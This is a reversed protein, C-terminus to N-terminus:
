VLRRRKRWETPTIGYRIKFRRTFHEATKYGCSASIEYIGEDTLALLEAAHSLRVEDIYERPTKGIHERFLAGLYYPHYKLAKAVSINTLPDKFNAKIYAVADTVIKNNSVSRNENYLIEYILAKLLSASLERSYKGGENSLETMKILYDLFSDAETIIFPYLFRDEGIETHSPQLLAPDYNETYVPPLIESRGYSDTFDFNITIFQMPSDSESRLHYRIGAPYYLLTDPLLSLEGGDILMKGRGSLVYLFRCDYAITFRKNPLNSTRSIFRLYPSLNKM